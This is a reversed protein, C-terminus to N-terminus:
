NESLQLTMLWNSADQGPILDGDDGYVQFALNGVPQTNDWKIQKPPNFLRRLVFPSYGMLIPFGYQDLLPPEDFAMYWRCLVDKVSLATSSDKVDQCYTLQQSTFDLYRYLRLDPPRILGVIVSNALAGGVLLGLKTALSSAVVRILGGAASIRVTPGVQTITLVVGNYTGPISNLFQAVTSFSEVLSDGFAVTSRSSGSIDLLLEDGSLNPAAWELVVETTGVRSFFGNLISNPRTIQFDWPSQSSLKDKSDVMLNATSPPRFTVAKDIGFSNM